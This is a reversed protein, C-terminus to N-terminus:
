LRAGRHLVGFGTRNVLYAGTGGPLIGLANTQGGQPIKSVVSATVTPSSTQLTHTNLALLTGDASSSSGNQLAYITDGTCELPAARETRAAKADATALSFPVAGAGTPAALLLAGVAM